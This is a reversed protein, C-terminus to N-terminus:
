GPGPVLWRASRELAWRRVTARVADGRVQVGLAPFTADPATVPGQSRRIELQRDYEVQVAPKLSDRPLDFDLAYAAEQEPTLRM